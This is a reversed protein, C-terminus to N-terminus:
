QATGILWAHSGTCVQAAFTAPKATPFTRELPQTAQLTPTFHLPMAHNVASLAESLLLSPAAPPCALRWMQPPQEAPLQRSASTCPARSAYRVSPGVERTARAAAPRASALPAQSTATVPTATTPATTITAQPAAPIAAPTIATPPQTPTTFAAPTDTSTSHPQSAPAQLRPFCTLQWAGPM